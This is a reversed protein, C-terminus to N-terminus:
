LKQIELIMQHVASTAVGFLALADNMELMAEPHTQPNRYNDRIHDLYVTISGNAGKANLGKIYAAWNQTVKDAKFTKGTLKEYYASMVTEVVRWLHFACATPLEFALCKGSELLDKKAQDPILERVGDPFHQDAHTILADTEYIGKQSAVYTSVGPMDNSLVTELDKIATQLINIKYAEIPMKADHQLMANVEVPVGCNTITSIVANAARISAPQFLTKSSVQNLLADRAIYFDWHIESYDYKKVELKLISFLQKGLSYAEYPNFKKVRADEQSIIKHSNMKCGGKGFQTRSIYYRRFISMFGWRYQFLYKERM